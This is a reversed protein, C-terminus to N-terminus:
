KNMLTKRKRERKKKRTVHYHERYACSHEYTRIYRYVAYRWIKVSQRKGFNQFVIKASLPDTLADIRYKLMERLKIKSTRHWDAFFAFM